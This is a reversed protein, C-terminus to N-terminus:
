HDDVSVTTFKNNADVGRLEFAPFEQGVGIM